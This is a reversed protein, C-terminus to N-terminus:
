EVDWWAPSDPGPWVDCVLAAMRKSRALIMQEDWAVGRSEALLFHNLFLVSHQERLTERKREWSDNSQLSNLRRTVLTLNGITHLLLNRNQRAEDEDLEDLNTPLPWHAEWSQPLVHEITLRPPVTAEEALSTKRYQEEIGELILRLRGRTLLRYLPLTSLDRELDDNTPWRRSDATQGSLFKAVARDTDEPECRDLERVLDLALRNYDKTTARCVM